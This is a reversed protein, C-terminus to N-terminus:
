NNFNPPMAEGPIRGLSVYDDIVGADAVIDGSDAGAVRSAVALEVARLRRAAHPGWNLINEIM